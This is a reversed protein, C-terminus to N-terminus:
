KFLDYKDIKYIINDCYFNNFDEIKNRLEEILKEKEEVKEKALSLIDNVYEYEEMKDNTLTIVKNSKNTKDNFWIDNNSKLEISVNVYFNKTSLCISVYNRFSKNLSIYCHHINPDIKILEREIKDKMNEDIKLYMYKNLINEIRAKYLLCFVININADIMQYALNYISRQKDSQNLKIRKEAYDKKENLLTEITKM